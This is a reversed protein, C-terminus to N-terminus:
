QRDINMEASRLVRGKRASGINLIVATWARWTRQASPRRWVARAHSVSRARAHAWQLDEIRAAVWSDLAVHGRSVAEEARGHRGTRAGADVLGQLQTIAPHAPAM